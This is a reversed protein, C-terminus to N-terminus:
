VPHLRAIRSCVQNSRGFTTCYIASVKDDEAVLPGPPGAGNVLVEGEGSNDPDSFFPPEDSMM